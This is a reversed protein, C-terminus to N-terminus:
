AQPRERDAEQEAAEQEARKEWYRDQYERVKERNDASWKRKYARRAELAKDTMDVSRKIDQQVEQATFYLFYKKCKNYWLDCSFYLFRFFFLGQM